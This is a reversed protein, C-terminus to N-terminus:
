SFLLYILTWFVAPIGAYILISEILHIIKGM